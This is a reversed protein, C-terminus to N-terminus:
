CGSFRPRRKAVFAEIGEAFDGTLTSAVFRDAEAELQDALSHDFARNLLDKTRAMALTPGDALRRALAATEAELADAPVVRNVLGIREATAADIRDGLLALEMARALGIKRPLHWSAGGDPSTGIRCYGATFVADDAAIVLDAALMLALGGGAAAGRVSAIVPAPLRRLLLVAGHARRIMDEFLAHRRSDSLTAVADAFLKVDGGAAFNGGAGRIVLCRVRDDHQIDILADHIAAMMADDIANFVAPRNLTLTAVGDATAAIVTPSETPSEPMPM